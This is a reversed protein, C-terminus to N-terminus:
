QKLMGNLVDKLAMRREREKLLAQKLGKINRGKKESECLHTYQMNLLKALRRQTIGLSKRSESTNYCQMMLFGIIKNKLEIDCTTKEIRSYAYQKIKLHEAVRIQTVDLEKRIRKIEKM